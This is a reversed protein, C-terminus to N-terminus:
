STELINITNNKNLALCFDLSINKKTSYNDIHNSIPLYFIDWINFFGMYFFKSNFNLTYVIPFDKFIKEKRFNSLFTLTFNQRLFIYIFDNSFTNCFFIIKFLGSDLSNFDFARLNVKYSFPFVGFLFNFLFYFTFLTFFNNYKLSLSSKFFFNKFLATNFFFNNKKSNSLFYNDFM